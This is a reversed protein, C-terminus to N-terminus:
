GLLKWGTHSLVGLSKLSENKKRDVDGGESEGEPQWPNLM